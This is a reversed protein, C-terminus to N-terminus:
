RVFFSLRCIELKGWIVITCIFHVWFFILLKREAFLHTFIRYAPGLNLYHRAREFIEKEAGASSGSSSSKATGSEDLSHNSNKM